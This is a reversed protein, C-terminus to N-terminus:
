HKERSPEAGMVGEGPDQLQGRFRGVNLGGWDEPMM